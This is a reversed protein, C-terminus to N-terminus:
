VKGSVYAEANQGQATRGPYNQGDVNIYIVVSGEGQVKAKLYVTNGSRFTYSRSWPLRAPTYTDPGTGGAFELTVNSARGTVHYTVTRLNRPELNNVAASGSGSSVPPPPVYNTSGSADSPAAVFNPDPVRSEEPDPPAVRFTPKPKFLTKSALFGILLVVVLSAM